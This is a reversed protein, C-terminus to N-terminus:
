PGVSRATEAGLVAALAARTPVPCGACELVVSNGDGDDGGRVVRALAQELGLETLVPSVAPGEGWFGAGGAVGRLRLVLSVEKSLCRFRRSPKVPRTPSRASPASRTIRAPQNGPMAPAPERPPSQAPQPYRCAALSASMSACASYAPPFRHVAGPGAIPLVPRAACCAGAIRPESGPQLHGETRCRRRDTDRDRFQAALRRPQLPRAPRPGCPEPSRHHEDAPVQGAAQLAVQERGPERHHPHVGPQHGGLAAAPPLTALGVRDVRQRDRPGRQPLRVQRDRAQVARGPRDLQQRVM